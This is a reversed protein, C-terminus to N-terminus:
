PKSANGGKALFDSQMILTCPLARGGVFVSRILTALCSSLPGNASSTIAVHNKVIGSYTSPSPRSRSTDMADDDQQRADGAFRIGSM